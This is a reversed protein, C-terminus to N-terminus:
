FLAVVAGKYEREIFSKVEESTLATYLTEIKTLNENGSKVAIVNAYSEIVASDTGEVALADEFSLKAAIAYNGNIVAADAEQLMGAMKEGNLEIFKLNFPNEKIEEVTALVGAGDNLRILGKSELLRLARAENTDESPLAITMGDKLDSMESLYESYLALPEFHVAGANVLSMEKLLNTENLYTIHQFFNADLSGDEVASNMGDYDEYEIIELTYGQAKLLPEAVALIEAHPVATAGIRIINDVPENEKGEGSCGTFIMATLAIIMVAALIRLKGKM